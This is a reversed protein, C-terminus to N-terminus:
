TVIISFESIFTHPTLQRTQSEHPAQLSLEADIIALRLGVGLGFTLRKSVKKTPTWIRKCQGHGSCVGVDAGDVVTESIGLKASDLLGLELDSWGLKALEFTGLKALDVNGLRRFDSDGLRVIESSGLKNPDVRDDFGGETIGELM